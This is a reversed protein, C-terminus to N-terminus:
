NQDKHQVMFYSQKKKDYGEVGGGDYYVIEDYYDDDPNDSSPSVADFKVDYLYREKLDLIPQKQM